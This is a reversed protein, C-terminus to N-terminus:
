PGVTGVVNNVTQDLGTWRLAVAGECIDCDGVCPGGSVDPGSTRVVSDVPEDSVTRPLAVDGEYVDCEEVGTWCPTVGVDGQSVCHM